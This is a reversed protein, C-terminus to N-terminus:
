RPPMRVPGRSPPSTFYPAYSFYRVPHGTVGGAAGPAGAATTPQGAQQQLSRVDSQLQTLGQGFQLQPRTQLFLNLGPNFRAGPVLNLYPSVPPRYFPSTQPRLPQQARLPRGALCCLTGAALAALVLRRM